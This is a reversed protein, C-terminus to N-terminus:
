SGGRASPAAPTISIGKVSLDEGRKSLKNKEEDIHKM